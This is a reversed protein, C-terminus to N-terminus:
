HLCGDDVLGNCDNDLGDCSEPVPTCTPVPCGYAADIRTTTGARIAACSAGHLTISQTAADYTFGDTADQPIATGNASVRLM